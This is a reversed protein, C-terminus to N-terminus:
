QNPNAWGSVTVEMADKGPPHNPMTGKWVDDQKTFTVKKWNNGPFNQDFLTIETTTANIPKIEQVIGVHGAKDGDWAGFSVVSGGTPLVSGSEASIYTFKGDSLTALNKAADSGNGIDATTKAKSIGLENAYIVILDTCQYKGDFSGEFNGNYHSDLPVTKGSMQLYLTGKVDGYKLSDAPRPPSSTAIISVVKTSTGTTPQQSERPTPNLYHVPPPTNKPPSTFAPTTQGGTKPVVSTNGKNGFSFPTPTTKLNFNYTSPQTQKQVPPTYTNQVPPPTNKPPSTFAPTTQGGTKPVVSTNGKNGVSIPAPTTKLNFNYTSPQTQKQVPPTYTSQIPPPNNKPPSSNNKPTPQKSPPDGAIAHMCVFMGFLVPILRLFFRGSSPFPIGSGCRRNETIRM